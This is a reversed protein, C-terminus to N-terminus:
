LRAQREEIERIVHGVAGAVMGETFPSPLKALALLEGYPRSGGARCLTLYDQWARDPDEKMRGYLAFAGLQAMAYDIYYFPYMFIHQKQMWFGGAEMYPQGDYDRWPLYVGELEKWVERRRDASMGPEEFVRHQFHDVCAMYPISMLNGWLHSFYYKETQDGFFLEMWPYTFHEMAMSHIENIESTSHYYQAIPQLRSATYNEFAHGAEHTLVEVDASTGNFNSFIFPAKYDPLSTCYGGQRKGNRTELDFLSYRTMFDFFEGTEPSLERYMRGANELMTETDGIPDPNGEPFLFAEDYYRIKDVGIREAQAELLRACAPVVTEAIQRRFAAVDEPTYDLRGRSLYAMHTYDPFGLKEAMRTRCRIMRDYVDDLAEAAKEYLAAWLTFAEKRTERDTSQMGKLLGYFNVERGRFMTRCGAAIRQYEKVLAAEETKDEIIMPHQLRMRAETVRFFHSGFNKEMEERYPSDLLSESFDKQLPLLRPMERNLYDMEADYYPDETNITNRIYALSFATRLHSEIGEMRRFAAMAQHYGEAKRFRGICGEMEGRIAEMDPRKYPIQQFKEM